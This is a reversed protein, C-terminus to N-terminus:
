IKSALIGLLAETKEPTCVGDERWYIKGTRDVLAAVIKKENAIHLSERFKHKSVYAVLIRSRLDKDTTDSRLSGQFWWRSLLNVRSMTLLEYYNFESHAAQIKRAAPIWTDVQQQQERAFSIVVLNLQGSFEQPLHLKAGDLSTAQIAPFQGPQQPTSGQLPLVSALCVMLLGLVLACTNKPHMRM